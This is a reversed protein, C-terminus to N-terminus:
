GKNLKKRQAEEYQLLFADLQEPNSALSIAKKNAQEKTMTSLDQTPKVQSPIPLSNNTKIMRDGLVPTDISKNYGIDKKFMTVMHAFETGTVSWPDKVAKAMFAPLKQEAWICMADYNENLFSDIDNHIAKAELYHKNKYVDADYGSAKNKLAELEKRHEERIKELRAEIKKELEQASRSVTTRVGKVLNEDYEDLLDKDQPSTTQYESRELNSQMKALRSNLDDFREELAKNIKKLEANEQQSRTIEPQQDQQRKRWREAEKKWYDVNKIEEPPNNAPITMEPEKPTEPLAQNVQSQELKEEEKDIAQAIIKENGIMANLEDKTYTRVM